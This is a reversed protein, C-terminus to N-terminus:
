CSVHTARQHQANRLASPKTPPRPNLVWPGGFMKLSAMRNNVPHWTAAWAQAVHCWWMQGFKAMHGIRIPDAMWMQGTLQQWKDCQWQDLDADHPTKPSTM